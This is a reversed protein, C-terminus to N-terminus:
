RGGNELASSSMEVHVNQNNSIEETSGTLPSLETTKDEQENRVDVNKRDYTKDEYSKEFSWVNMNELM